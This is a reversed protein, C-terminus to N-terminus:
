SALPHEEKLAIRIPDSQERVLRAPSTTDNGSSVVIDRYSKILASKALM